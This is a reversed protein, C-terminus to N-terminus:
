GGPPRYWISKALGHDIESSTLIEVAQLDAVAGSANILTALAAISASDPLEGIIFGTYEGTAAWYMAEIKGGASQYGKRIAAERAAAREKLFGKHGDVSYKFFSLYRPM